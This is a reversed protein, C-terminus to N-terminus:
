CHTQLTEVGVPVRLTWRVMPCEGRVLVQHIATLVIAVAAAAGVVVAVGVVDQRRRFAKVFGESLRRCTCAIRYHQGMRRHRSALLLHRSTMTCQAPLPCPRLPYLVWLPCHLNFSRNAQKAGSASLPLSLGLLAVM